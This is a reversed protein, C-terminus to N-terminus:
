RPIMTAPGGGSTSDYRVSRPRRPAPSDGPMATTPASTPCYDSAVRANRRATPKVSVVPLSPTSGAPLRSNIGAFSRDIDVISNAGDGRRLIRTPHLGDSRGTRLQCLGAFRDKSPRVEDRSSKGCCSEVRFLYSGVPGDGLDRVLLCRHSWSVDAASRHAQDTAVMRLRYARHSVQQLRAPCSRVSISNTLHRCTRDIRASSPSSHGSCRLSSSLPSVLRQGGVIQWICFHCSVEVPSRLVCVRRISRHLISPAQNAM